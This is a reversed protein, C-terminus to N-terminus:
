FRLGNTQVGGAAGCVKVRTRLHKKLISDKDEFDIIIPKVEPRRFVRGLYQIFYDEVDAAVVLADLFSRDFGTGAKSVTGLTISGATCNTEPLEEVYKGYVRMIREESINNNDLLMERIVDGHSIRKVLVLVHRKHELLKLLTDVILDNRETNEAQEELVANWNRRGDYQFIMKPKFQTKLIVIEHERYLDKVIYKDRNGFFHEFLVNLGDTRYPTASLGIIFRPELYMINAMLTRAMIMHCNHVVVGGSEGRVTDKTESNGLVVYNHNTDVTMDYVRTTDTGGDDGDSDHDYMPSVNLVRHHTLWGTEIRHVLDGFIICFKYIDSGWKIKLATPSVYEVNMLLYKRMFKWMRRRLVCGENTAHSIFLIGTDNNQGTPSSMSSSPHRFFDNEEGGRDCITNINWPDRKLMDSNKQINLWTCMRDFSDRNAECYARTSIVYWSALCMIDTNTYADDDMNARTEYRECWGKEERGLCCLEMIRDVCRRYFSLPGISREGKRTKDSVGYALDCADNWGAREDRYMYKTGVLWMGSVMESAEIYGENVVLFRHNPTCCVSMIRKYDDKDYTDEDEDDGMIGIDVKLLAKTKKREGWVRIIPCYEFVRKDHNFSRAEFREGERFRHELEDFRIAMTTSVRSRGHGGNGSDPEEIKRVDVMTDGTFCEDIIVTGFGDLVRKDIKTINQANVLGFTLAKEETIPKTKKTSLTDVVAHPYFQRISRKWQDMLILRNLVILIPLGARVGITLGTISKGFGPFMSLLVTGQEKLIGVAVDHVERQENRLQGNFIKEEKNLARYQSRTPTLMREIMPKFSYPVHVVANGNDATGMRYAMIIDNGKKSNKVVTKGRGKTEMEALDIMLENHIVRRDDESLDALRLVRSM